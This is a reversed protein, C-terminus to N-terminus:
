VAVSGGAGSSGAVPGSGASGANGGASSGMGGANSGSVAASGGSGSSGAKNAGSAGGSGGSSADPSGGNSDSACASLLWAGALITQSLLVLSTKVHCRSQTVPDRALHGPHEFDTMTLSSSKRSVLETSM